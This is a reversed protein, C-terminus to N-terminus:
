MMSMKPTSRQGAVLAFLLDATLLIGYGSVSLCNIKKTMFNSKNLM